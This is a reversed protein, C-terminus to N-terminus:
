KNQPQYRMPIATVMIKVPAGVLLAPTPVPHNKTLLLSVIGRSEGLAPCTKSSKGGYRGNSNRQIAVEITKNLRM